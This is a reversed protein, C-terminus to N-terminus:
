VQTGTQTVLDAGDAASIRHARRNSRHGEAARGGGRPFRQELELRTRRQGRRGHKRQPVSLQLVARHHRLQAHRHRICHLPPGPRCKRFRVHWPDVNSLHQPEVRHTGDGTAPTSRIHPGTASPRRSSKTMGQVYVLLTGPARRVDSLYDFLPSHADITHLYTIPMWVHRHCYDNFTCTEIAMFEEGEATRTRRMWVGHVLMNSVLHGQPHVIRISLHHSGNRKIICPRTPVAAARGRRTLPQPPPPPVRTNRGRRRVRSSSTPTSLSSPLAFIAAQLLLALLSLGTTFLVCGAEESDRM